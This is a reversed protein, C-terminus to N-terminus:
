NDHLFQLIGHPLLLSRTGEVSDFDLPKAGLNEEVIRTLKYADDKTANGHILAEIHLNSLLEPIFAQVDHSHIELCILPGFSLLMGKLAEEKEENTWQRSTLLYKTYYMAHDYTALIRAFCSTFTFNQFGSLIM